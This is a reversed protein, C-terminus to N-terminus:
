QQQTRRHEGEWRDARVEHVAENAIAMAEDDTLPTVGHKAQDDAIDDLVRHLNHGAAERRGAVYERLAEEIIEYEHRGSSVALMKATQLLRRDLYLSTKKRDVAM